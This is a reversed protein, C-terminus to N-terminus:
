IVPLSSFLREKLLKHKIHILESRLSTCLLFTSKPFLSMIQKSCLTIRRVNTVKSGFPDLLKAIQTKRQSTFAKIACSIRNKKTIFQSALGEKLIIKQKGQFRFFTVTQFSAKCNCARCLYLCELFVLSQSVFTIYYASKAKRFESQNYISEFSFAPKYFQM